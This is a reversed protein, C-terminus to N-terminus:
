LAIEQQDWHFRLHLGDAALEQSQFFAKANMFTFHTEDCLNLFIAKLESLGRLTNRQNKLVIEVGFSHLNHIEGAYAERAIFFAGSLTRDKMNKESMKFPNSSPPASVSKWTQSESDIVWHYETIKKSKKLDELKEENFPGSLTGNKYLYYQM